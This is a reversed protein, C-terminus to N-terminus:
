ENPNREADRMKIIEELKEIQKYMEEIMAEIQVYEIDDPNIVNTLKDVLSSLQTMREKIRIQIFNIDMYFENPLRDPSVVPTKLNLFKRRFVNYADKVKKAYEIGKKDALGQRNLKLVKTIGINYAMIIDEYRDLMSLTTNPKLLYERLYQFYRAFLMVNYDIEFLKDVNLEIKLMECAHQASYIRNIQMLGYDNERLLWYRFSSEKYAFALMLIPDINYEISYKEIADAVRGAIASVEEEQLINGNRSIYANKMTDFVIKEISDAFCVSTFVFFLIFKCFRKM